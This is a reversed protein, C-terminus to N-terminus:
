WKIRKRVVQFMRRWKSIDTLKNQNKILIKNTIMKRPDM